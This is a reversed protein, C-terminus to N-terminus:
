LTLTLCLLRRDVMVTLIKTEFWVYESWNSSMTKTFRRIMRQMHICSQPTADFKRPLSARSLRNHFKADFVFYVLWSSRKTGLTTPDITIGTIFPHKARHRVSERRRPSEFTWTQEEPRIKESLSQLLLLDVLGLSM